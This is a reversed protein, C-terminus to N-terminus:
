IDIKFRKLSTESVEEMELQEKYLKIMKLADEPQMFM